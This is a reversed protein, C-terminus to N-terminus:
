CFESESLLLVTLVFSVPGLRKQRYRQLMVNCRSGNCNCNANFARSSVYQIANPVGLVKEGGTRVTAAGLSRM